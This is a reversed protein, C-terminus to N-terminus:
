KNLFKSVQKLDHKAMKVHDGGFEKRCRELMQHTEDGKYVPKGFRFFLFERGQDDVPPANETKM